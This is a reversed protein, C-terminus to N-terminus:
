ARPCATHGTPSSRQVRGGALTGGVWDRVHDITASAASAVSSSGRVEIIEAGRKAVRPIFDDALWQRAGDRGGMRAALLAAVSDGAVTAHEVDPFQTASHNGLDHPGRIDGVSGEVAVALQGLARNHDLRTLATFRERPVDPAHAAAILANTNAPIAWWSSASTTPRGRTSRLARRASSAATRPSCTAANWAPAGPVRASSCHSTRATSPPTPTM